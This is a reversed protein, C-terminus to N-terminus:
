PRPRREVRAISAAAASACALASSSAAITRDARASTISANSAARSGWTHVAMSFLDMSATLVNHVTATTEVFQRHM